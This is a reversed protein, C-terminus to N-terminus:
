SKMALISSVAQIDSWLNSLDINLAVYVIKIYKKPSHQM